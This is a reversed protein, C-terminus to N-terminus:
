PCGEIADRTSRHAAEDIPRTAIEDLHLSGRLELNYREIWADVEDVTYFRAFDRNAGMMRRTLYAAGTTTWSGAGMESWGQAQRQRRGVLTIGHITVVVGAIAAPIVVIAWVRERRRLREITDTDGVAEAFEDVKMPHWGRLLRIPTDDREALGLDVRGIRECRYTALPDPESALALSLMYLM